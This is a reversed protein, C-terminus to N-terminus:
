QSLEVPKLNKDAMFNIVKLHDKISITGETAVKKWLETQNMNQHCGM